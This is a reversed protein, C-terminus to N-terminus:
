FCTFVLRTERRCMTHDTNTFFTSSSCCCCCCCFFYKVISLKKGSSHWTTHQINSEQPLFRSSQFAEWCGLAVDTLRAEYYVELLITLLNFLQPVNWHLRHPVLNVNMTRLLFADWLEALALILTWWDSNSLDLPCRRFFTMKTCLETKTHPGRIVWPNLAHVHVTADYLVEILFFFTNSSQLRIVTVHIWCVRKIMANWFGWRWGMMLRYARRLCTGLLFTIIMVGWKQKTSTPTEKHPTILDSGLRCVHVYIKCINYMWM